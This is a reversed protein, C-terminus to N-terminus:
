RPGIDHQMHDAMKDLELPVIESLDTSYLAKLYAIDAATLGDPAPPGSCDAAMLTTISPLESCADFTTTQVLALFAIYDAVAGIQLDAVKRADAVILATVIESRRGDTLRSGAKGSPTAYDPDDLVFGGISQPVGVQAGAGETGTAYWAQIPHSITTVRKLQAPFHFGLLVQHRNRISDALGQPDSTFVIAINVSCRGDVKVPAGVSAAVAKVRKTVFANFAPPLGITVPCIDDRWRALLGTHNVPTHVSVFNNIAPSPISTRPAKRPATVTVDAPATKDPTAPAPGDAAQAPNALILLGAAASLIAAAVPRM